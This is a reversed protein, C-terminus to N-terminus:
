LKVGGDGRSSSPPCDYQSTTYLSPPELMSQFALLGACVGVPMAVCKPESNEVDVPGFGGVVALVMM